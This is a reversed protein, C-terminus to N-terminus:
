HRGEQKRARLYAELTLAPEGKEKARRPQAVTAPTARVEIRGITVRVVPAQGRDSRETSPHGNIEPRSQSAFGEGRRQRVRPPSDSKPTLISSEEPDSPLDGSPMLSERGRRLPLLLSETPRTAADKEGSSATPKLSEPIRSAAHNALGTLAATHKPLTPSHADDHPARASYEGATAAAESEFRTDDSAVGASSFRSAVLPEVRPATGRAREVLRALFGNM